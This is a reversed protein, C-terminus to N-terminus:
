NGPPYCNVRPNFPTVPLVANPNVYENGPGTACYGPNSPESFSPYFSHYYGDFYLNGYPAADRDCPPVRVQPTSQNIQPHHQYPYQDPNPVHGVPFMRNAAAPNDGDTLTHTLQLGTIHPRMDRPSQEDYAPDRRKDWFISGGAAPLYEPNNSADTSKPLTCKPRKPDADEPEVARAQM